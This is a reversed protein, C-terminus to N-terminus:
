KNNKSMIWIVSIMKAKRVDADETRKAVVRAEKRDINLVDIKVEWQVAM